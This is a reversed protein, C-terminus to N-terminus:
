CVRIVGRGPVSRLCQSPPPPYYNNVVPRPQKGCSGSIGCFLAVDIATEATHVAIHTLAGVFPDYGYRYGGGQFPMGQYAQGGYFITPQPCVIAQGSPIAVYRCGQGFDYANPIILGGAITPTGYPNVAVVREQVFVPQQQHYQQTQYPQQPYTACGSVALVMAALVVFRTGTKM